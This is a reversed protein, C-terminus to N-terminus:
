DKWVSQLPMFRTLAKVDDDTGASTLADVADLLSESTPDLFGSGFNKGYDGGSLAEYFFQPLGGVGSRDFGQSIATAWDKDEDDDGKIGEKLAIAVMTIPVYSMLRLAPMYNGEIAENAVRRLIIAHFSYMFQKLHTFLMFRADNFYIPREAANPRLIAEDVFQNLAARVRDDRAKEEKSAQNRAAEGLIRIEGNADFQIDGERLSLQDLFRKSNKDPEQVHKTIFSKGAALAMLRTGRTWSQLLNWRFLRDNWKRASGTIRYGGYEFGLAEVSTHREITGLMEALRKLETKNNGVLSRVEALGAKLGDWAVQMDGRVALGAVDALSTLMSLGLIAWNQIVVM